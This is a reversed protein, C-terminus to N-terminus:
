IGGIAHRAATIEAKLNGAGPIGAVHALPGKGRLCGSAGPLDRNLEVTLDVANPISFDERLIARHVHDAVSFIVAVDSCSLGGHETKFRGSRACGDFNKGSTNRLIRRLIVVRHRCGAPLGMDDAVTDGHSEPVLVRCGQPVCLDATVGGRDVVLDDGTSVLEVTCPYQERASDHVVRDIESANLVLQLIESVLTRADAQDTGGISVIIGM